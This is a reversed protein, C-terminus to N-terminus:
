REAFVAQLAEAYGAQPRAQRFRCVRRHLTVSDEDFRAGHWNEPIAAPEGFMAPGGVADATMEGMPVAPDLARLFERFWARATLRPAEPAESFKLPAADDLVGLFRQIGKEEWAPLLRGENRLEECFRQTAADVEVFTAACGAEGRDVPEGTSRTEPRTEGEPGQIPQEREEAMQVPAEAQVAASQESHDSQDSTDSRDSTDSQDSEDSQDSTDSRDSQNSPANPKEEAEEFAIWFRGDDDQEPATNEPTEGFVPDALGKVVPAGAGLFTLARLYPRGTTELKRYIEVSRKKFAGAKLNELFGCDLGGLRALLLRGARRLGRVWGLAPGEQRHDVTVPAEHLGPAYDSAIRELDEESYSGRPGYDGARFVEMEIEQDM